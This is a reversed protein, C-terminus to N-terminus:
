CHRHNGQNQQNATEEAAARSSSEYLSGSIRSLLLQKDGSIVHIRNSFTRYTVRGRHCLGLVSSACFTGSSSQTFPLTTPNISSHKHCKVESSHNVEEQVPPTKNIVFFTDPSNNPMSAPSPWMQWKWEQLHLSCVTTTQWAAAWRM